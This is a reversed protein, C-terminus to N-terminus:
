PAWGYKRTSPSGSRRPYRRNVTCPTPLVVEATSFIKASDPLWSPSCSRVTLSLVHASFVRVKALAGANPGTTSVVPDKGPPVQSVNWTDDTTVPSPVYLKASVVSSSVATLIVLSSPTFRGWSMVGAGGEGVGNTM